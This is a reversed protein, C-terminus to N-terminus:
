YGPSHKPLSEYANNGLVLQKLTRANKERVLRDLRGELAGGKRKLQLSSTQLDEWVQAERHWAAVEEQQSNWADCHMAEHAILAALAEPLQGRHKHHIFIVREEQPSMWGLADYQGINGGFVSLDKFLIKTNHQHILAWSDRGEPSQRLLLLAKQLQPEPTYRVLVVPSTGLPPSNAYCPLLSTLCAWCAVIAVLKLRVKM